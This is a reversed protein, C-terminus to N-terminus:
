PLGVAAATAHFSISHPSCRQNLTQFHGRASVQDGHRSLEVFFRVHEGAVRSDFDGAGTAERMAEAGWSSYLPPPTVLGCILTRIKLQNVVATHGHDAHIEFSVPGLSDNAASGRFYGHWATAAPAFAALLGITAALTALSIRFKNSRM